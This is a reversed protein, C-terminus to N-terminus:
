RQQAPSRWWTGDPQLCSTGYTDVMQGGVNVRMTYEREQVCSGSGSAYAEQPQAYGQPAYGSPPPAYGQQPTYGPPPSLPQPYGTAGPPYPGPGYNPGYSSGNTPGYAPGYAPGYPTPGQDRRDRTAHSLISLVGIGLLTYGLIKGAKDGKHKNHRGGRRHRDRDRHTGRYGSEYGGGHRDGYSRKHDALAPATITASTLLIASLVSTLKRPMTMQVEQLLPHFSGDLSLGGLQPVIIAIDVQVM